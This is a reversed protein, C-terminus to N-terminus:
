QRGIEVGSQGDDAFAGLHRTTLRGAGFATPGIADVEGPPQGM